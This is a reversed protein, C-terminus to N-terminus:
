LMVLTGAGLTERDIKIKGKMEDRRKSEAKLM